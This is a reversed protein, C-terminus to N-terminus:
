IFKLTESKTEICEKLKTLPNAVSNFNLTKILSKQSNHTPFNQKQITLNSFKIFNSSKQALPNTFNTTLNNFVSTKQIKSPKITNLPKKLLPNIFPKKIQNRKTKSPEDQSFEIQSM